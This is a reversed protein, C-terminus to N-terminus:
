YLLPQDSSQMGVVSMANTAQGRKCFRICLCSKLHSIAYPVNQCFIAKPEPEKPPRPASLPSPYLACSCTEYYSDLNASKLLM